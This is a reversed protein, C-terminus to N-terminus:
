SITLSSSPVLKSNCDGTWLSWWKSTGNKVKIFYFVESSHGVTLLPWLKQSNSKCLNPQVYICKISMTSRFINTNDASLIQDGEILRAEFCMKKSKRVNFKLNTSGRKEGGRLYKVKSGLIISCRVKNTFM